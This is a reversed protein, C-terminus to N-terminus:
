VPRLSVLDGVTVEHTKGDHDVVLLSGSRTVDTAEGLIVGTETTIRVSEGLTASFSRYKAWLRPDRFDLKALITLISEALLVRDPSMGINSLTITERDTLIEELNSPHVNIGIGVVISAQGGSILSQALVGALKAQRQDDLVVLDNPWKIRVRGFGLDHLAECAAIAMGSSFVGLNVERSDARFLVSMLLSSDAEAIWERERRGRGSTQFDAIIVMGESVVSKSKELLDSNTSGTEHVWTVPGFDLFRLVETLYDGRQIPHDKETVKRSHTENSKM